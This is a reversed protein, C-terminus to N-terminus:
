AAKCRWTDRCGSASRRPPAQHVAPQPATVVGDIGIPGWNRALARLFVEGYKGQLSVYADTFRGIPNLDKKGTYDPDLRLYRDTYVHSSLAIPGVAGALQIGAQYAGYSAGQPRLPDRRAQTAASAGVYMDAQYRPVGEPASLGARLRRITERTAAGASAPDAEALAAAPAARGVP